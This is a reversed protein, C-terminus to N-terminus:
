ARAKDLARDHLARVNTFARWDPYVARNGLEEEIEMLRNYKATRESRAPAGTKIQGTNMAVAFDAITTDETEGSRHSVVSTYGNQRAMEVAQITETITGIQNLKILISNGVGLDIGRRLREINTVFIDDGMVQVQSALAKTLAVWGDWDDEALGDELSAIPFERILDGYFSVMESSSLRRNETRLHYVGDEFFESAAPDIAIAIDSGPKYGAESIAEVILQIAHRNSELHPAYGGEDGVTTGLGRKALVKGLAHYVEAGARIAEHENRAGVPMVMFEQLDTSQWKTHKGGNLINFQPIPMTNSEAHGLYEYLPVGACSAAAKAIAISTGVTANAGLRAKNPTGDLDILAQDAVNQQSADMGRLEAAITTNVNEVAHLVGKGSFRAADGDRLEVAEHAGTSAGSPVGAVGVSGDALEVKVALTPNGRSDLVERAVISRITSM